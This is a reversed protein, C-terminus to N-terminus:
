KGMPIGHMLLRAEYDEIIERQKRIKRGRLMLWVVLAIIVLLLLWALWCCWCCGFNEGWLHITHSLHKEVVPKATSQTLISVEVGPLIDGNQNGLYTDYDDQTDSVEFIWEWTLHYTFIEGPHISGKHVVSNLTDPTVWETESGLLYNGYSDMLKFRVPVLEGNLFRINPTMIFDIVVEDRNKLRIDYNVATGPAIVNEGNAGQVTIDGTHNSYEIKFLEIESDMGMGLDVSYKDRTAMDYLRSGLLITTLLFVFLFVVLLIWVVTSGRRKKKTEAANDQLQATM